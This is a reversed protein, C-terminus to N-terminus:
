SFFRIPAEELPDSQDVNLSGVPRSRYPVRLGRVVAGGSRRASPTAAVTQRSHRAGRSSPATRHLVRLGHEATGGGPDDGHHQQQEADADDGTEHPRFRGHRLVALDQHPCARVGGHEPPEWPPVEPHARPQHDTREVAPRAGVECEGHRRGIEHDVIRRQDQMRGPVGRADLDSPGPRPPPLMADRLRPLWLCPTEDARDWPVSVVGREVEVDRPQDIARARGQREDEHGVASTRHERASFGRSCGLDLDVAVGCRAAGRRRGGVALGVVM